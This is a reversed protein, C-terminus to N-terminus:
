NSREDEQSDPHGGDSSEKQDSPSKAVVVTAPRILRDRLRFGRRLQQVVQGEPVDECEKQSVAEHIAPDFMKGTADMEELGHEALINKFQNYVMTVGTKIADLSLTETNQTAAIAMDFHDLTPLLQEILAENAYKIADLRERAARKKYNEFEATLRLMRDYHEECKAAKQQLVKIEDPSPLISEGGQVDEPDYLDEASTSEDPTNVEASYPENTENNDPKDMYDIPEDRQSKM